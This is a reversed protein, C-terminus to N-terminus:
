DGHLGARGWGRRAREAWARSESTLIIIGTIFLVAAVLLGRKRLTTDDTFLSISPRPRQKKEGSIELPAPTPLPFRSRPLKGYYFPNNENSDLSSLYMCTLAPHVNTSHILSICFYPQPCRLRM